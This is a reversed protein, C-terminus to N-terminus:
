GCVCSGAFKGTDFPFKMYFDTRAIRERLENTCSMRAVKRAVKRNPIIFILAKGLLIDWCYWREQTTISSRYWLRRVERWPSCCRGARLTSSTALFLYFFFQSFKKKWKRECQIPYSWPSLKGKSKSGFPNGYPKM